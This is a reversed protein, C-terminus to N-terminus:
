PATGRVWHQELWDLSRKSSALETHLALAERDRGKTDERAQSLRTRLVWTPVEFHHLLAGFPRSEFSALRADADDLSGVETLACAAEFLLARVAEFAGEPDRSTSELLEEFGQESMGADLAADAMRPVQTALFESDPRHGLLRGVLYVDFASAISEALLDSLGGPPLHKAVVHHWVVHMVVDAPLSDSALVDATRPEWFLLNLLLARQAGPRREDGAIAFRLDDRRAIAVLDAYLGVHSFSAEDEVTLESFALRKVTV